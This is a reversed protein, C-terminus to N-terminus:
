QEKEIQSLRIYADILSGKTCNVIQAGLYDAYGRIREHEKFTLYKDMLWECMTFYSGDFRRLTRYENGYYHNDVLCLHNEEDVAMNNFFTHDVGYLRIDKCGMNLLLYEIMLTVNVFSPVAKGQKYYKYRKKEFGEFKLTSIPVITINHNNIMKKAVPYFNNPVFLRLKWSTENNLASITKRHGEKANEIFFGKDALCYNEPKVIKYFETTSFFNLVFKSATQFSEDKILIPLEEKLSPGNALVFARQGIMDERYPFECKGYRHFEIYRLIIFRLSNYLSKLFVDIRKYISIKEM